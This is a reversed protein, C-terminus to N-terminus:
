LFGDVREEWAFLREMVRLKESATCAIGMRAFEFFGEVGIYVRLEVRMAKSNSSSARRRELTRECFRRQGVYGHRVSCQLSACASIHVSCIDAKERERARARAFARSAKPAHGVFRTRAPRAAIPRAQPLTLTVRSRPQTPKPTLLKPHHTPSTESLNPLYLSKKTYPSTKKKKLATTFVLSCM